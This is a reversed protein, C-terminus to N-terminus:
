QVRCQQRFGRLLNDLLIAAAMGRSANMGAIKSWTDTLPNYKDVKSTSSGSVSANVTYGGIAYLENNLSVVSM